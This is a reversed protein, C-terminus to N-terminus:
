ESETQKVKFVLSTIKLLLLVWPTGHLFFDFIDIPKSLTGNSLMMLKEVIHPEPKFPAIGLTAVLIIIIM